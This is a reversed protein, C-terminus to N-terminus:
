DRKAVLLPHPPPGSVVTECASFCMTHPSFNPCQSPRVQTARSRTTSLILPRYTDHPPSTAGGPSWVGESFPETRLNERARQEQTGKRSNPQAGRPDLCQTASLATCQARCLAQIRAGILRERSFTSLLVMKVSTGLVAKACLSELQDPPERLAARHESLMADTSPM